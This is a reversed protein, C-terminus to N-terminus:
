SQMRVLRGGGLTRYAPFGEIADSYDAVRFNVLQREIMIAKMQPDNSIFNRTM